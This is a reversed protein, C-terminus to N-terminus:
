SKVMHLTLRMEAHVAGENRKLSVSDLSMLPIEALSRKLFDRIQAYSGAAPLTIEYRVIRAETKHTRYTASKLQVGSAAGIGHLKALWDTVEEDKQLFQYVAGVKEAGRLEADKGAAPAKRAAREQLLVGRQELPQVVFSSFFLAAALLAIGAIGSMGIREVLAKM